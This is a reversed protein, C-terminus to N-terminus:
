IEVTDLDTWVAPGIEEYSRQSSTIYTDRERYRGYSYNYSNEQMKAIKKAEDKARYHWELCKSKWDTLRNKGVYWSKSKYYYYFNEADVSLMGKEIFEKVEEITLEDLNVPEQGKAKEGDESKQKSSKEINQLNKRSDGKPKKNKYKLVKENVFNDGKIGFFAKAEEYTLEVDSDEDECESNEDEFITNKTYEASETDKKVSKKSVIKNKTEGNKNEADFFNDANQGFSSKEDFLQGEEVPNINYSDLIDKDCDQEKCANLNSKNISIKEREKEKYMEKEKSKQIINKQKKNKYPNNINDKYVLKVIKTRKQGNKGMKTLKQGNRGTKTFKPDFLFGRKEPNQCIKIVNESEAGRNREESEYVKKSNYIGGSGNDNECWSNREDGNNDECRSNREDGNNDECWSNREDGNNDECRSNKEGGNNNECRSNKEGGNNNECWSNRESGNDDEFRSNREDGNNDECWNGKKSENYIESENNDESVSMENINTKYIENIKYNKDSKIDTIISNNSLNDINTNNKEINKFDDGVNKQLHFINAKQNKVEDVCEKEKCINLNRLGGVCSEGLSESSVIKGSNINENEVVFFERKGTKINCEKTKIGGDNDSKTGSEVESEVGNEEIRKIDCNNENILSCEKESKTNDDFNQINLFNESLIKSSKDLDRFSELMEGSKGAITSVGSNECKETLNKLGSVLSQRNKGSNAVNEFDGVVVSEGEVGTTSDGFSAGVSVKKFDPVSANEFTESVPEVTNIVQFDFKEGMKASANSIKLKMYNFANLEKPNFATIDCEGSFVLECLANMVRARSLDSRLGALIIYFSDNFYFGTM